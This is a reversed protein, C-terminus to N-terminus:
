DIPPHNILSPKEMPSLIIGTPVLFIKKKDLCKKLEKICDDIRLFIDNFDKNLSVNNEFAGLAELNDDISRICHGYSDESYYTYRISIINLVVDTTDDILKKVTKNFKIKQIEKLKFQM